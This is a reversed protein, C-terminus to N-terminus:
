LLIIGLLDFSGYIFPVVSLEVYRNGVSGTAKEQRLIKVGNRSCTVEQWLEYREGSSSLM